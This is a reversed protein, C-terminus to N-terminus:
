PRAPPAALWLRERRGDGHVLWAGRSDIQAVRAGRVTEGLRRWQGDILAMPQARLYVGALGADAPPAPTAEGALGSAGSAGTAGARPPVFPAAAGLAHTVAPAGLALVLLLAARRMPRSHPRPRSVVEAM